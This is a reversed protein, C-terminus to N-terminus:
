VGTLDQRGRWFCSRSSTPPWGSSLGQDFIAGEELLLENFIHTTDDEVAIMIMFDTQSQLLSILYRPM